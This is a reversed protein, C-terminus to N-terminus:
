SSVTILPSWFFENEKRAGIGVEPIERGNIWINLWLWGSCSGGVGIPIPCDQWWPALGSSARCPFSGRAKSKMWLAGAVHNVGGSKLAGSLNGGLRLWLVGRTRLLREGAGRHGNSRCQGVEGRVQLAAWTYPIASESRVSLM